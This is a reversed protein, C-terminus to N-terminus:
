YREIQIATERQLEMEDQWRTQKKKRNTKMCGELHPESSAFAKNLNSQFNGKDLCCDALEDDRGCIVSISRAELQKPNYIIATSACKSQTEGAETTHGATAGSESCKDCEHQSFLLVHM